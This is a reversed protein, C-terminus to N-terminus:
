QQHHNLSCTNLQAMGENVPQRPANEAAKVFYWLTPLKYHFSKIKLKMKQECNKISPLVLGLNKFNALM